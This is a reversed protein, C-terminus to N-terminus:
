NVIAQTKLLSIVLGWLEVVVIIKEVRSLLRTAARSNSAATTSREM